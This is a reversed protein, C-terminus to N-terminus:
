QLLLLLLLLLLTLPGPGGKTQQFLHLVQSDQVILGGVSLYSSPIPFFQLSHDCVSLAHVFARRTILVWALFSGAALLWAKRLQSISNNFEGVGAHLQRFERRCSKNYTGQAKGAAGVHLLNALEVWMELLTTGEFNSTKDAFLSQHESRPARLLTGALHHLSASAKTSEHAGSGSVVERLLNGFVHV